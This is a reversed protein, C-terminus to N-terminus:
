GLVSEFLDKIHAAFALRYVQAYFTEDLTITQSAGQGRDEFKGSVIAKRPDDPEPFMLTVGKLRFVKMAQREVINDITTTM